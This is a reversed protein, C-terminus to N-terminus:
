ITHAVPYLSTYLPTLSHTYSYSLIYPFTSTGASLIMRALFLMTLAADVVGTFTYILGYSALLLSSFMYLGFQMSVRGTFSLAQIAFLIGFFEVGTALALWGFQFDCDGISYSNILVLSVCISAFYAFAWVGWNLSARILLPSGIIEYMTKDAIEIGPRAVIPGCSEETGNLLAIDKLIVEAEDVRGRNILWRPSEPLYFIGLIGLCLVPLACFFALWRWGLQALSGAGVGIVYESGIVTFLSIYVIRNRYKTPVTEAFLDYAVSQSAGIGVGVFMRTIILMIIDTSLCSVMGFVVILFWGLLISIRRGYLDALPCLTLMGIIQGLFVMGTLLAEIEDSLDWEAKVCGQIFTLLQTEMIDCSFSLGVIIFLRIQFWGWGAADIIEDATRGFDEIGGEDDIDIAKEEEDNSRDKMSKKRQQHKRSSESM